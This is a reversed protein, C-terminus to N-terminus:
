AVWGEATEVTYADELLADVDDRLRNLLDDVRRVRLSDLAPLEGYLEDIAASIEGLIAKDTAWDAVARAIDRADILMRTGDTHDLGLVRAHHTVATLRDLVSATLPKGCPRAVRDMNYYASM